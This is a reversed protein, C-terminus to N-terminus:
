FSTRRKAKFHGKTKYCGENTHPWVLLHSTCTYAKLGPTHIHHAVCSWWYLTHTHPTPQLEPSSQPRLPATSGPLPTKKCSVSGCTSQPRYQHPPVYHASTLTHYHPTYKTVGREREPPIMDTLPSDDWKWHVFHVWLHM